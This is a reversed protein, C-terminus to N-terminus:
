KMSRVQMNELNIEYALGFSREQFLNVHSNTTFEMENIWEDYSTPMWIIYHENTLKNYCVVYNKFLAFVRYKENEIEHTVSGFNYDNGKNLEYFYAENRYMYSSLNIWVNKQQELHTIYNPNDILFKKSANKPHFIDKDEATPQYILESVSLQEVLYDWIKVKSLKKIQEVIEGEVQGNDAFYGTYHLYTLEGTTIEILGLHVDANNLTGGPILNEYYFFPTNDINVIKFNSANKGDELVIHQEIAWQENKKIIIYIESDAPSEELETYFAIVYKKSNIITHTCYNPSKNLLQKAIQCDDIKDDSEYHPLQRSKETLIRSSYHEKTNCSTLLVIAILVAIIYLKKNLAVIM